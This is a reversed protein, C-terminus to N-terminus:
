TWRPLDRFHDGQMLRIELNANCFSLRGRVCIGQDAVAYGSPPLPNVDGVWEM